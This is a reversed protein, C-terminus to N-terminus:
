MLKLALNFSALNECSKIWKQVNTPVSNEGESQQLTCYLVVDAVSLDAGIIWPSKGLNTNLLRMVAAKEKNSGGKLQFIATDVWSDIITSTVPNYSNGLLSFLFRAINGEGEIPCMSQVCFKMQPKFVQKWILTFGLQYEHRPRNKTGEGLCNLLRTPVNEVSSHVHVSSLVKYRECLLGHLVLLSLPPESPNANIVIDRLVGFSEGLVSDLNATTCITPMYNAPNIDTVDLDADPTLVTKSLNDVVAKLEYLRKLMEEQRSELAQIAPDNKGDEADSSGRGTDQHISAIRYMCTPPDIVRHESCYPKVKYMPM